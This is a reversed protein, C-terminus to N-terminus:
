YGLTWNIVSGDIANISLISTNSTEGRYESSINGQFDWVPVLVGTDFSDKESIRAYVLKVDTVKISVAEDELANEIVVMKEFTDKIEDFSKISAKEVVTEDVSLPTSYRFAVIGDDNVGVVITEPFWMKKVYEDGQWGDTLKEGATNDVFVGDINRLYSVCYIDRYKVVLGNDSPGSVLQPVQAFLGMNCCQYDTLGLQALFDDAQQKATEKSLNTTEGEIAKWEITGYATDIGTDSLNPEEGAEHYVGDWPSEPLVSSLDSYGERTREYKVCNGHDEDNQAYLVQYNGKAGDNVGYYTEGTSNLSYLWEYYAEGSHSDYLQQVGHFQNDSPYDTINVHDPASKYQSELEAIHPKYEEIYGEYGIPQEAELTAIEQKWGQIEKAIDAKTAIQTAAGEYWTTEPAITERVKDLFDQEIKKQRVRYVSLQEAEPVHVKADVNVTVKLSDNNLQTRYTSYNDEIEKTVDSYSLADEGTNAAQELMQDLNKEKVISSTPNEACGALLAFAAGAFILKQYKKGM